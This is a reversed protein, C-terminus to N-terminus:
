RYWRLMYVAIAIGIVGSINLNFTFGITLSFVNLDLTAPSFGSTVSRVFFEKVVGEPLLLAIQGIVTGILAGLIIILVLLRFSIRRM